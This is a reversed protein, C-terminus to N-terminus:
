ATALVAEFAVQAPKAGMVRRLMLLGDLRAMLALAERRRVAATAGLVRPALWKVWEEMLVEALGQYPQVRASALGVAEFFVAFVADASPTTLVPWAAELLERASRPEDGFAAALVVQLELGMAAVTAEVLASKSPFYYVVMRDSTGLREAVKAFTLGSLGAEAAVAVAAALM